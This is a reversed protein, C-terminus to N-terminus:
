APMEATAGGTWATTQVMTESASLKRLSTAAAARAGSQADFEVQAVLFLDIVLHALVGEGLDRHQQHDALLLGLVPRHRDSPQSGPSFTPPASSASAPSTSSATAGSTLRPLPPYRCGWSVARQEPRLLRLGEFVCGHHPAPRLGADRVMPRAMCVSPVSSIV